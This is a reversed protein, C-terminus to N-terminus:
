LHFTYKYMGRDKTGWTKRATIHHVAFGDITFRLCCSFFTTEIIMLPCFISFRLFNCFNFFVLTGFGVRMRM